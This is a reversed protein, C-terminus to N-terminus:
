PNLFFLQFTCDRLAAFFCIDFSWIALRRWHRLSPSSEPRGKAKAPTIKVLRTLV